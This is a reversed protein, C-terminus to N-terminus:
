PYKRKHKVVVTFFRTWVAEGHMEINLFFEVNREYRAKSILSDFDYECLLSEQYLEYVFGELELNGCLLLFNMQIVKCIHEIEM